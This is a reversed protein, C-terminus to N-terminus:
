ILLRILERILRFLRPMDLESLDIGYKAATGPTSFHHQVLPVEDDGHHHFHAITVFEAIDGSLAINAIQLGIRQATKDWHLFPVPVVGLLDFVGDRGRRFRRTKETIGKRLNIGFESAM